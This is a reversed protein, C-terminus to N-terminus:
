AAETTSQRAMKDSLSLIKSLQIEWLAYAERKEKDYAYRNYVVDTVSRAHTAHNLILARVHVPVGLLALQTGVTRRLDHPAVGMIKLEATLRNMARSLGDPIIPADRGDLVVTPFLYESSARSASLAIEFERHAMPALPVRHLLRNKTRSSPITWVPSDGLDIESKRIGAVEARRQGTLLMIRIACRSSASLM